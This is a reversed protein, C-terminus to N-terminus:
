GSRNLRLREQGSNESGGCRSPSQGDSSSRCSLGANLSPGGTHMGRAPRCAPSSSIIASDYSEAIIETGAPPWTGALHGARARRFGSASAGGERRCAARQGAHPSSFIIASDYSEAIIETGASPWAGALHGRDPEVSPLRQPGARADAHRASAPTPAQPSLQLTMHSKCNDGHWRVAMSRGLAGSPSSPLCVSLGRGRTQM